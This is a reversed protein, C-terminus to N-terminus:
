KVMGFNVQQAGEAHCVGSLVNMEDFRAHFDNVHVINLKFSKGHVVVLLGAPILIMLRLFISVAFRNM